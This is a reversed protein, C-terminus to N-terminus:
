RPYFPKVRDVALYMYVINIEIMAPLGKWSIKLSNNSYFFCLIGM